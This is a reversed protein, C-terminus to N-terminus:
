KKKRIQTELRQYEEESVADYWTPWGATSVEKIALYSYSSDAVAGHWRKVNPGIQIVDGPRVVVAEKGEEQHWGEGSLALILQGGPHSHWHNRSGPGYTVHAATVGTNEDYPALVKEFVPGGTYYQQFAPHVGEGLPFINDSVISNNQM